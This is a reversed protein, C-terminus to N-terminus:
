LRRFIGHIEYNQTGNSTSILAGLFDGTLSSGELFELVYFTNPLPLVITSTIVHDGNIIVVDDSLAETVAKLITKYPKSPNEREGTVDDGYTADVFVKNEYKSGSVSINGGFGGM